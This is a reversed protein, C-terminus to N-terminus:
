KKIVTGEKVYFIEGPPLNEKLVPSIETGTIFMQVQDLAHILFRQRRVDLESLVDDLLLVADEGSEQKIIQIEALKLSLAATRQQGQSGFHRIDIDQTSLKLDDKHPGRTTTRRM